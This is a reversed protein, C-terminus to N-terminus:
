AFGLLVENSIEGGDKKIQKFLEKAAAGATSIM